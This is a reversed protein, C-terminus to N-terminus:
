NMNSVQSRGLLRQAGEDWLDGHASRSSPGHNIGESMMMMIIIIIVRVIVILMMMMIILIFLLSDEAM